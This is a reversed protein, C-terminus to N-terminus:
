GRVAQQAALVARMVEDPDNEGGSEQFEKILKFFEQRQQKWTEYIQLPVLAAAAKGHRSIVYADGHYQVSEVMTSFNERAKTLGVNTEIM